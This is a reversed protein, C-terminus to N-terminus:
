KVVRRHVGYVDRKSGAYRGAGDGFVAGLLDAFHYDGFTNSQPKSGNDVVIGNDKNYKKVLEGFKKARTEELGDDKNDGKHHNVLAYDNAQRYLDGYMNKVRDMVKRDEDAIYLVDDMVRDEEERRMIESAEEGMKEREKQAVRRKREANPSEWEMDDNIGRAIHTLEEDYKGSRIDEDSADPNIRKFADVTSKGFEREPSTNEIVQKDTLEDDGPIRPDVQVDGDKDELMGLAEDALAEDEKQRVTKFDNVPSSGEGNAPKMRFAAKDEESLSPAAADQKAPEEKADEEANPKEASDEGLEKDLRAMKESAAKEDADLKAMYDKATMAGEIENGETDYMRKVGSEDTIATVYQDSHLNGDKDYYDQFKRHNRIYSSKEDEAQQRGRWYAVPDVGQQAGESDMSGIVSAIAGVAQDRWGGKGTVENSADGYMGNIMEAARKWDDDTMGVPNGEEDIKEPFIRALVDKNTLMAQLFEQRSPPTKSDTGKMIDNLTKIADLKVKAVTASEKEAAQKQRISQAKEPTYGTLERIQSKTMRRGLNRVIEDAVDMDGGDRVMDGVMEAASTIGIPVINGRRDRGLSIFNGHEDITGGVMSGGAGLQQNVAPMISPHVFGGNKLANKYMAARTVRGVRARDNQATQANSYINDFESALMNNKMMQSQYGMMDARHEMMDAQASMMRSQDQLMASQWKRGAKGHMPDEQQQPNPIVNNGIQSIRYAM